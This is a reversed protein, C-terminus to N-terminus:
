APQSETPSGISDLKDRMYGYSIVHPIHVLGRGEGKEADGRALM